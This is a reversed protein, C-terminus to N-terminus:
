FSHPYRFAHKDSGMMTLIPFVSIVGGGWCAVVIFIIGNEKGSECSEISIYLGWVKIELKNKFLIKTQDTTQSLPACVECKAFVRVGSLIKISELDNGFM